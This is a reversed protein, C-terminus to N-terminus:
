RKKMAYFYRKNKSTLQLEGDVLKYYYMQLGDEDVIGLQDELVYYIGKYEQKEGHTNVTTGQFKYNKKFEVVATTIDKFPKDTPSNYSEWTGLLEPQDLNPTTKTKKATKQLKNEHISYGLVETTCSEMDELYNNEKSDNAYVLYHDAVSFYNGLFSCADGSYIDVTELPSGKLTQYIRLTAIKSGCDIDHDEDEHYIKKRAIVEAIYIHDAHKVLEAASPTECTSALSSMAQSFGLLIVIFHIKKIHM